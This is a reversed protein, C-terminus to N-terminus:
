LIRVEELSLYVEEDAKYYDMSMDLGFSEAIRQEYVQYLEYRAENWVQIASNSHRGKWEPSPNKKQYSENWGDMMEHFKNGHKKWLEKRLPEDAIYKEAVAKDLTAVLNHTWADDYQGGSGVVIYIVSKSM